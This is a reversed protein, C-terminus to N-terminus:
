GRPAHDPADVTQPWLKKSNAIVYNLDQNIVEGVTGGSFTLTPFVQTKKRFSRYLTVICEDDFRYAAYTHPGGYALIESTRAEESLASQASELLDRYKLYADNIKQVVEEPTKDSRCAIAAVCSEDSVDPLIIRVRRGKHRVFLDIQDRHTERWHNAYTVFVDLCMARKFRDAWMAQLQYNDSIQALGATRVDQALEAVEMVEAAFTRRGWLDWFLALLGTAVFIGALQELTKNLWVPLGTCSADLCLTSVGVFLGGGILVCILAFIMGRATTLRRSWSVQRATQGWGTQM